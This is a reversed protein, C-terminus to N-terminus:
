QIGGFCLYKTELYEEIGERAGERGLGSQKVGGFPAVETSMVGENIGVMGYDLAEAVRWIRSIDRSYFYAALGYITDNAMAILQEDSSFRLVPAVPGFIEEQVIDMHQEVDALITPEVFLGDQPQGGKVVRSGQEVTREVLRQLRQKASAEIVPGVFVSEDLGNGLTLQDVAAIFKDMFADYVDDHIYFRNACVCTQGANRFKSALAGSVAADIDADDFVVFPANGGLELSMRKITPACDRALLRGVRTSGTFSLKRVTESACLVRGVVEPSQHIVLQLLDKPIGAQYALEVVAYATLPTQNAPKCVFSCGAALAPAAKRTIMALPFNWPTIAGVVGVPQKITLLRRDGTHGPITDGCARKAEEAFWEIFSAGYAVEGKAEALPKGQELTMLRALDNQNDMVLRYWRQLVLAREKATKQKWSNGAEEALSIAQEIEAETQTPIHGLLEGTAPNVVSLTNDGPACLISLLTKNNIRDM